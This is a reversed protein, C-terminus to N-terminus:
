KDKEQSIIENKSCIHEELQQKIRSHIEQYIIVDGRSLATKIKVELLALITLWGDHELKISVKKM